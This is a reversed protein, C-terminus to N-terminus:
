EGDEGGLKERALDALDIANRSTATLYVGYSSVLLAALALWQRTEMPLLVLYPDAAKLLSLPVGAIIFGRVAQNGYEHVPLEQRDTPTDTATSATSNSDTEHDHTDTM